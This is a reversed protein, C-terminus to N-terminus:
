MSKIKHGYDSTEQRKRLLLQKSRGKTELNQTFGEPNSYKHTCM